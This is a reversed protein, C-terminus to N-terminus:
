VNGLSLIKFLRTFKEVLSNTFCNKGLYNYELPNCIRPDGHFITGHFEYITNTEKCFGDAKFRTNPIKFEEGNFIKNILNISQHIELFM